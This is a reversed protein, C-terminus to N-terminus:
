SPTPSSDPSWNRCFFESLHLVRHDTEIALQQLLERLLVEIVRLNKEVLFTPRTSIVESPTRNFTRELSADRLQGFNVLEWM